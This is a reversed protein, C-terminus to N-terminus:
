YRMGLLSAHRIARPKHGSGSTEERHTPSMTRATLAARPPIFAPPRIPTAPPPPPSLLTTMPYGWYIRAVRRQAPRPATQVGGKMWRQLTRVTLTAKEQHERACRLFEDVIEEQTRESNAVLVALLTAPQQEVM